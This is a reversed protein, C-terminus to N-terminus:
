NIRKYLRLTRNWKTRDSQDTNNGKSMGTLALDKEQKKDDDNDGDQSDKQPHYQKSFIVVREFGCNLIVDETEKEIDKRMKLREVSVDIQEFNM